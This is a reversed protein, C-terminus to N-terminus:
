SPHTPYAPIIAYGVLFMAVILGLVLLRVLWKLQVDHHEEGSIGAWTPDDYHPKELYSM